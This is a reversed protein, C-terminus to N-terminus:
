LATPNPNVYMLIGDETNQSQCGYEVNPFRPRPLAAGRPASMPDSVTVSRRWRQHMEILRGLKRQASQVSFPPAHKPRWQGAKQLEKCAKGAM